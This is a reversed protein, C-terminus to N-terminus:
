IEMELLQGIQLGQDAILQELVTRNEPAERWALGCGAHIVPPLPILRGALGCARGSQEFALADHTSQFTVVIALTKTRM